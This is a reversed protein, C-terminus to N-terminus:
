GVSLELREGGFCVGVPELLVQRPGEEVRGGVIADLGLGSALAVVRQGQGAGCYLAFGTGM